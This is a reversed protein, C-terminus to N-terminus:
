VAYAVEHVNSRFEVQSTENNKMSKWLIRGTSLNTNLLDVQDSSSVGRSGATVEVLHFTSILTQSYSRNM